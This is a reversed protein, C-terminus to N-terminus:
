KPCVVTYVKLRVEIREETTEKEIETGIETEKGVGRGIETEGIETEIGRGIERGLVTGKLKETGRGEFSERETGRETEIGIVM